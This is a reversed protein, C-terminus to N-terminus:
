LRNFWAKVMGEIRTVSHAVIGGLFMFVEGERLGVRAKLPWLVLDGGSWSGWPILCNYSPKNDKWDLHRDVPDGVQNRNVAVTHWVGAVPRLPKGDPGMVEGMYQKFHNRCHVYQEPDVLRLVDSVEQFLGENEKLWANAMTLDQQMERTMKFEKSYDAWVGWHRVGFIGRKHGSASGLGELATGSVPTPSPPHSFSVSATPSTPSTSQSTDSLNDKSLLQESRKLKELNESTIPFRFGILKGATDKIELFGGDSPYYAFYRVSDIEKTVDPLHGIWSSDHLMSTYTKTTTKIMRTKMKEEWALVRDNVVTAFSSGSIDLENQQFAHLKLMLWTRPHLDIGLTQSTQTPTDGAGATAAPEGSPSPSPPASSGPSAPASSEPSAPASSEPSAPASSEPSSQPSPCSSLPSSMAALLLLNLM